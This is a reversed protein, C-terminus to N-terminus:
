SDYYEDIRELAISFKEQGGHEPSIIIPQEFL